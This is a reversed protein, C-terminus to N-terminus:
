YVKFKEYSSMFAFFSLFFIIKDFVFDQYLISQSLQNM